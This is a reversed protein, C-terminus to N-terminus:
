LTAVRAIQCPPCCLITTPPFPVLSAPPAIIMFRRIHNSGLTNLPTRWPCADSRTKKWFAAFLVKGQFHTLAVNWAMMPQSGSDSIDSTSLPSWDIRREAIRIRIDRQTEDDVFPSANTLRFKAYYAVLDSLSVYVVYMSFVIVGVSWSDVVNDYGENNDQKVVEPALYSPTGCM